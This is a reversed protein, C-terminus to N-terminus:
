NVSEGARLDACCRVTSGRGHDRDRELWIEDFVGTSDVTSDVRPFYCNKVAAAAGRRRMDSSARLPRFADYVVISYRRRPNNDLRAAPFFV